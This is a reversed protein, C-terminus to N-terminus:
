SKEGPEPAAADIDVSWDRHSGRAAPYPISRGAPPNRTPPAAGDARAGRWM